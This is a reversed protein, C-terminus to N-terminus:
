GGTKETRIPSAVSFFPSAFFATRFIRPFAAYPRCRVFGLPLYLLFPVVSILRRSLPAPHFPAARKKHAPRVQPVSRFPM